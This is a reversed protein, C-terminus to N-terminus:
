PRHEQSPNGEGKLYALLDAFEQRSLSKELGTPMLSQRSAQIEDIESRLLTEERGLRQRLTLGEPTESTILGTLVRGDKTAITYAAFGPTIEHDPALLHLLIAPKPQNRIGFLDPGVASGEQDLRHCSACERRFVARGNDPDAKAAVVDKYAEYVKARDEQIAGFLRAARERIGADRHQILQRRHLADVAVAPVRGGEIAALLGPLHQSQAILTALVEDRISPPYTAFRGPALLTATVRDDRHSGLARVATAQLPAPQRPDLLGLLSEGVRDFGAFALLGVASARRGVPQVPDGALRTMDAVLDDIAKAPEGDESPPGSLASLIDGERRAALRGRAAEALGTLLAAREEPTFGARVVITRVLGSWADEPQSAGLLRGLENLLADPLPGAPRPSGRLAALFAPERGALASFVAARMWRDSGDRAVIRALAAAVVDNSPASTPSTAATASGLAIAAQFRVRAEADNALPLVDALRPEILQLAHERVPAAPHHLAQRVLPDSLADLAELLRLAHVVAVPTSREDAAISRLPGVAAPDRRELLLRHATDRRWGDPDRLRECLQAVSERGLDERRHRRM